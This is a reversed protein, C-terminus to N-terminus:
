EVALFKWGQGEAPAAAPPATQGQQRARGAAILEPMIGVKTFPRPVGLLDAASNVMMARNTAKRALTQDTDGLEPLNARIMRAAESPTVAAGSLIPMFSAEFSKAAQTYNQYDQGAAGRAAGAALTGLMGRKQDADRQAELSYAIPHSDLPNRGGPHEANQNWGEGAYLNKQAQVSPGFGLALRTRSDSGPTLPALPSNGDTRGAQPDQSVDYWKGGRYIIRQGTTPNKATQGEVINQKAM